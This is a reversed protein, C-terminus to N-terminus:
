ENRDDEHTGGRSCASIGIEPAMDMIELYRNCYNQQWQGLVRTGKMEMDGGGEGVDDEDEDEVEVV